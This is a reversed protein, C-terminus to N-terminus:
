KEIEKLFLDAEDIQSENFIRVGNCTLLEATIGSGDIIKGSFSGDYISLNGCSPSNKKLIALKINHAIALELTKQAGLIFQKSIDSGDKGIVQAKGHIVDTLNGGVIEAPIRPIPLGGSVEPCISIIRGEKQWKKLTLHESFCNNGDYRVNHGLLCASILIKQM